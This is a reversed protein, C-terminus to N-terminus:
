LISLMKSVSYLTLYVLTVLYSIYSYYLMLTYKTRSEESIMIGNLGSHVCIKNGSAIYM